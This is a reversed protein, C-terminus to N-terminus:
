YLWPADYHAQLQVTLGAINIGKFIKEPNINFEM